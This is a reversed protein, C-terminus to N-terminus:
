HTNNENLVFYIRFESLTMNSAIKAFTRIEELEQKKQSKRLM